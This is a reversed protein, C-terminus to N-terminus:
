HIPAQCGIKQSLFFSCPHKGSGMGLFAPFATHVVEQKKGFPRCAKLLNVIVKVSSM